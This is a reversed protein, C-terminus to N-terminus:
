IKHTQRVLRTSTCAYIACDRVCIRALRNDFARNGIHHDRNHVHGNLPPRHPFWFSPIMSLKASYGLWLPSGFLLPTWLWDNNVLLPRNECRVFHQACEM